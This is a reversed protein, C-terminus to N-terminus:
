ETKTELAKLLADAAKRCRKCCNDSMPEGEIKDFPEFEEKENMVGARKECLAQNGSYEENTWPVRRIAPKFAHQKLTREGDCSDLTAWKVLTAWKIPAEEM